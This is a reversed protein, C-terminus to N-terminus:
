FFQLEGVRSAEVKTIHCDWNKCSFKAACHDSGLVSIYGNLSIEIKLVLNFRNDYKESM